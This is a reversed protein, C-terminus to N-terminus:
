KKKAEPKKAAKKSKVETKVEAKAPAAARDKSAVKLPEILMVVRRKANDGVRPTTALSRVFTTVGDTYRPLLDEFTKKVANKDLLTQHAKKKASLDASKVVNFFHNAYSELAKAKSATTVVLEYLVLSTLQNRLTTSAFDSQSRLVRRM